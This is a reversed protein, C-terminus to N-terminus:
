KCLQICLLACYSLKTHNLKLSCKCQVIATKCVIVDYLATFPTIYNMKFPVSGDVCLSDLSYLITGFQVTKDIVCRVMRNKLYIQGYQDVNM